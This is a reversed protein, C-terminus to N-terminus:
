KVIKHVYLILKQWKGERILGKKIEKKNSDSWKHFITSIGVAVSHDKIKRQFVEAWGGINTVQLLAIVQLTAKNLTKSTIIQKQKQKECFRM